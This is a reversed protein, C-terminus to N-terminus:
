RARGNGEGRKAPPRKDPRFTWGKGYRRATERLTGAKADDTFLYIRFWREAVDWEVHEVHLDDPGIGTLMLGPSPAFPLEVERSLWGLGDTAFLRQYVLVRFV